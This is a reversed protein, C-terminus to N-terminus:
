PSRYHRLYYAPAALLGVVWLLVVWGFRSAVSRTSRLSHITFLVIVVLAAVSVLVHMGFLLRWVPGNSALSSLIEERFAMWSAWFVVVYVLPLFALVGAIRKSM